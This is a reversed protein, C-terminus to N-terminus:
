VRTFIGLVAFENRHPISGANCFLDFCGDILKREKADQYAGINEWTTIIQWLKPEGLCQVLISSIVGEPPHKLIQEYENELKRWDQESVRGSLITVHM